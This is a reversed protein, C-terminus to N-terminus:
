AFYRKLAEVFVRPEDVAFRRIGIDLLAPLSTEDFHFPLVELELGHQEMLRCASELYPRSLRYRWSREGEEVDILHLQIIDLSAFDAQRMEEFKRMSAEPDRGPVWLMTRVEPLLQKVTRCNNYDNHAFIIQSGVGFRRILEALSELDVQKYDLYLEREPHKALVTLVQELSPIKEGRFSEGFKIGADWERVEEFTMTSVPKESLPESADTTRRLTADHLGIIIGDATQRIDLEPIGGLEWAYEVAMM